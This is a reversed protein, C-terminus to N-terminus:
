QYAGVQGIADDAQADPPNLLWMGATVKLSKLPLELGQEMGNVLLALVEVLKPDWRQGQERQCM